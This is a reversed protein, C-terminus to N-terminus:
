DAWPSFCGGMAASTTVALRGVFSKEPNGARETTSLSYVSRPHKGDCKPFRNRYQGRVETPPPNAAKLTSVKPDGAEPLINSYASLSNQGNGSNRKRETEAHM